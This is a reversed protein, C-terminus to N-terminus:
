AAQTLLYDITFGTKVLLVNIKKMKQSKRIASAQFVLANKVLLIQSGYYHRKNSFRAHIPKNSLLQKHLRFSLLQIANSTVLGICNM